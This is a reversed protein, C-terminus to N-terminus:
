KTFGCYLSLSQSLSLKDTSRTESKKLRRDGEAKSSPFIIRTIPALPNRSMRLQTTDKGCYLSLFQALSIKNKSRAEKKLPRDGEAKLSPFRFRTIQALPNRSTRLQTTNEAENDHIWKHCDVNQEMNGRPIEKNRSNIGKLIQLTQETRTKNTSVRWWLFPWEARYLTREENRRSEDSSLLLGGLLLCTGSDEWDSMASSAYARMSM